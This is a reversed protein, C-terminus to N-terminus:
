HAETKTTATVHPVRKQWDEFGARCTCVTCRVAPKESMRREGSWYVGMVAESGCFPCPLPDYEPM